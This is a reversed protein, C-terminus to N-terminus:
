VAKLAIALYLSYMIKGMVDQRADRRAAIKQSTKVGHEAPKWDLACICKM